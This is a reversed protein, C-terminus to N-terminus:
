SSSLRGEQELFAIDVPEEWKEQKWNIYFPVSRGQEDTLQSWSGHCLLNRISAGYRLDALLEDLNTITASNSSRVANGYSGISGGLADSLAKEQDAAM